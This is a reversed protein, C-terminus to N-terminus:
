GFLSLVVQPIQNAQALMATGAQVLIQNRTFTSMEMAMDTDRIQSESATLNQAAIRLNRLNSELSNKQFSGLKGRATSVENIAADIISQADQAGEPSTVDIQALSLFMNGAQGKGLSSAAMNRIGISVTQGVNPGVQFILSRDTNTIQETGGQSTLSLNLNVFQSRDANYVNQDIGATVSTAPGGDLRVDFKAAKADLLLNGVNVGNQANAITLDISGRGAEGSAKNWLTVNTESNYKVSTITSTYNDFAVLADTGTNALSDPTLQLVNHLDGTGFSDSSQLEDLKISYDSGEDRTAFQIQNNNVISAVIDAEGSTDGSVTAFGGHVGNEYLANNIETVLGSLSSYTNADVTVNATVNSNKETNVTFRMLNSSTGRSSGSTFSFAESHGAATDVDSSSAEVQLSYQAGANVSTIRLPADGASASAQVKGALATNLNIQAQLKSAIDTMTDTAEVDISLSQNGTPSEGNEQYNVVVNYTGAQSATAAASLNTASAINAVTASAAITLDNGFADALTISGSTKKAVDSAQVVDLSHIKEELNYPDGDTNQLSIGLSTTNLSASPDATKTATISHQGTTLGSEKITLGSSNSTTITALNDKTGDLLKKTGFQTTAAIRDITKIANDIEAQDAKLQDVDNFGENAAHIALERMSILLSNIETLAGEATQIMTISGESNQIARNLGAIQARFQESIVLGAPDDSAANIRFGSSLKQMSKNLEVTTLGLNRNANLAALNHNIRLSM